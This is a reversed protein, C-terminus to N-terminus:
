TNMLLWKLEVFRFHALFAFLPRFHTGSSRHSFDSTAFAVCYRGPDHEALIALELTKFVGTGSIARSRELIATRHVRLWMSPYYLDRGVGTSQVWRQMSRARLHSVIPSNGKGRHISAKMTIMRLIPVLSDVALTLGQSASLATLNM